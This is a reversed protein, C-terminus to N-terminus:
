LSQRRARPHATRARLFLNVAKRDVSAVPADKWAALPWWMAGKPAKPLRVVRVDWRRHSFTHRFQGVEAGDEVALVGWTGALLGDARKALAVRNRVVCVGLTVPTAQPTRRRAVVPFRQVAGSAWAKCSGRLPCTTCSPDRPKCVTAGLEMLAENWRGPHDDDLAADALLQVRRRLAPGTEELAYLRAFVREVNGDVAALAAGFALSGVAARTYPGVGPLTPLVDASIRGDHDRMVSSAAAHLRRARQYYGLGSWASMVEEWSARALTPVDPFRTMWAPYYRAVVDWRTQQLM